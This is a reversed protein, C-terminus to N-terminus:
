PTYNRLVLPLYIYKYPPEGTVIVTGTNGHADTYEYTGPWDFERRYVRGPELFGADFGRTNELPDLASLPRLIPNESWQILDTITNTAALKSVWEVASGVPITIVAPELGEDTLTVTVAAQDPWPTYPVNVHVIETIVQVVPSRWHQYPSGETTAGGQVDIYYHGPPTFFAYYGTTTIGDPYVDDTVQPNVQDEYLHAPWPVWGGWQPMSVMCTVTVGSVAEVPNFMGGEGSYDGGKDVNFVYGDPDILIDGESSSTEDGCQSEIKVNHAGGTINFHYWHGDRSSLTYVAGDATVTMAQTAETCCSYLHLQTNRFGYEGSIQWNRTSRMGSQGRFYYTRDQGQNPGAKLTGEWYSRQPCWGGHSPKGLAIRNSAESIEGNHESRAILYHATFESVTPITVTTTFRGGADPTTTAVLTTPELNSDLYINITVGQQSIGRVELSGGSCTEGEEPFTIYPPVLVFQSEVHASDTYVETGTGQTKQTEYTQEAENVIVQGPTVVTTVTSGQLRLWGPDGEHLYETSEFHLPTVTQESNLTMSPGIMMALSPASTHREFTLEGPWQDEIHYASVPPRNPDSTQYHYRLYYEVLVKQTVDGTEPDRTVTWRSNSARKELEMKTPFTTVDDQNPHQDPQCEESPNAYIEAHATWGTDLWTYPEVQVQIAGEAGAALNGLNWVKTRKDPSTHDAIPNSASFQAGEPLTITVTTNHAVGPNNHDNKNEYTFTVDYRKFTDDSFQPSREPGQGSISLDPCRVITDVQEQWVYAVGGIEATAVNRITGCEVGNCAVVTVDFTILVNEDVDLTGQWEIGNSDDLTGSGALASNPVYETGAPIADNLTVDAPLEGTNTIWIGYGITDGVEVEASDAAKQLALDYGGLEYVTTTATGTNNITIAEATTSSIEVTNILVTGDVLVDGVVVRVTATAIAGPTLDGLNWVLPDTSDPTLSATVFNVGGPLTDTLTVSFATAAGSNGWSLDYILPAGPEVFTPADKQVWLDPVPPVYVVTTTVPGAANDAGDPDLANTPTVTATNTLIGDYTATPTVWVTMLQVTDTTVNHLTCTIVAGATTCDGGPTSGSLSAVASAPEVTDVVRADAMIESTAANTITLTYTLMQGATGNSPGTKLLALDASVPFEDAGLDPADGMPRPQGDVDDTIGADVGQDIADSAVTLHYGDAAFASTGTINGLANVAGVTQVPVADWLTLTMTIAAPDSDETEAGISHSYVLTHTFTATGGSYAYIANPGSNRALTTHWLNVNYGSVSLGGGQGTTAINDAIVNNIFTVQPNTASSTHYVRVGGAYGGSNSYIRNNTFTHGKDTAVIGGASTDATNSYIHNGTLTQNEGGLSIGGGHANSHNAYIENNELRYRTGGVVLGGGSDTATNHYIQNNRFTSDIADMYVGGAPGDQAVNDYVQNNEFIIHNSVYREGYLVVGGWRDTATNAYIQNHAMFSNSVDELALGGCDGHSNITGEALNHHVVNYTFTLYNSYEILAGGGYPWGRSSEGHVTNSYIENGTVLVYDSGKLYFGGGGLSTVNSPQAIEVYNDYFRNNQLVAYDNDRIYAGGGQSIQSPYAKNNHIDNNDLMLGPSDLAYIGGGQGGYSARARNDDIDNGILVVGSTSGIYVAGGYIAWNQFFTNNELRVTAGAYIYVGGGESSYVEWADYGNERILCDSITASAQAIYVGAGNGDIYGQTIDLGEVTVTIGSGTIYIVRGNDQADLTTTYVGPDQISFDANYGGRLTLTKSIYVVQVLGGYANVGTYIGTAVWIEDAPDDVADVAAQVTTYCPTVSLGGCDPAVYYTEYSDPGQAYVPAPESNGAGLLALVGILALLSLTLALSIHQLKKTNM